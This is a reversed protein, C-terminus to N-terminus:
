KKTTSKKKFHVHRLSPMCNDLSSAFEENSSFSAQEIIRYEYSLNLEEGDFPWPNLCITDDVAKQIYYTKNGISKNIELERGLSPIKGQCIILSCRDAFIMIDYLSKVDKVSLNYLKRQNEREGIIHDLLDKTAKHRKAQHNYLFELHKGTLLGILQSKQVAQQYIRRAHELEKDVTKNRMTFDMPSGNETLYNREDFNLLNDDHEIIGTLIDVWYRHDIFGDIASAIKGALLGHTYHSIIEWGKHTHKVIM